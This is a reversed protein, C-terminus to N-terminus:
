MRALSLLGCGFGKAPGIGSKVAKLFLDPDSVTLFGDFQVVYILLRNKKEGNVSWGNREGIEVVQVQPLGAADTVLRFGGQEGKRVLWAIQKEERVLPVRTKKDTTRSRTKVTPNAHLRFRLAQGKRFKLEFAKVQPESLFYTGRGDVSKWDPPTQSQILVMAEGTRPSIELRYLVREESLLSEPFGRMITRHLEYMNSLDRQAQRSRPNIVLRSLYM